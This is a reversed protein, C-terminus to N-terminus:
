LTFNVDKCSVTSGISGHEVAAQVRLSCCMEAWIHQIFKQVHKIFFMIIIEPVFYLIVYYVPNQPFLIINPM